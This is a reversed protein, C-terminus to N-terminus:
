KKTIEKFYDNVIRNLYINEEDKKYWGRITQLEKELLHHYAEHFFGRLILIKLIMVDEKVICEIFNYLKGMHKTNDLWKQRYEEIFYVLVLRKDNELKYGTKNQLYEISAKFYPLAECKIPIKLPDNLFNISKDKFSKKPSIQILHLLSDFQPFYYDLKKIYARVEKYKSHVIMKCLYDYDLANLIKTATDYDLGICKLLLMFYKHQQTIQREDEAFLENISMNKIRQEMCILTLPTLEQRNQLVQLQENPDLRIALDYFYQIDINAIGSMSKEFFMFLFYMKLHCVSITNRKIIKKIGLRKLVHKLVKTPSYDFLPITNASKDYLSIIFSRAEANESLYKNIKTLNM